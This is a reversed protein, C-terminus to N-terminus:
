LTIWEGLPNIVEAALRKFEDNLFHRDCTYIADVEEVVPLICLFDWVHIGSRASAEIAARCHEPTAERKLINEAGLIGNVYELAFDKPIKLGRFSLIHYIELIQHYSMLIEEDVKQLLFGKSKKHMELAKEYGEGFKKKDPKKQAFSWIETDIFIGM